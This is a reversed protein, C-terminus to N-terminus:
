YKLKLISQFKCSNGIIHKWFKEARLRPDRYREHDPRIVYIQLNEYSNSNPITIKYTKELSEITKDYEQEDIPTNIFSIKADPNHEIMDSFIIM